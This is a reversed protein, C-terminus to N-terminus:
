KEKYFSSYNEKTAKRRAQFAEKETLFTGLNIQKGKITIRALWRGRYFIIGKHKSTTNERKRSNLINDTSSAERLNVIRNDLGNGNKHDIIKPCFGKKLFFAIQHGYFRQNKYSIRVYFTKHRREVWGAKQGKKRDSNWYLVGNKYDFLKSVEAVSLKM